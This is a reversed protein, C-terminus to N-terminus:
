EDEVVERAEGRDYEAWMAADEEATAAQQAAREARFREIYDPYYRRPHGLPQRPKGADTRYLDRVAGRILRLALANSVPQGSPWSGASRPDRSTLQRAWRLLTVLRQENRPSLPDWGASYRYDGVEGRFRWLATYV